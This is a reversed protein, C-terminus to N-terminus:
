ITAETQIKTKSQPMICLVIVKDSETFVQRSLYADICPRAGRESYQHNTTNLQITKIKTDITNPIIPAIILLTSPAIIEM